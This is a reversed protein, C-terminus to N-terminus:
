LGTTADQSSDVQSAKIDSDFQTIAQQINTDTQALTPEVSTVTLPTTTPSVAPLAQPSQKKSENKSFLILPVAALLIIFLSILTFKHKQVFNRQDSELDM